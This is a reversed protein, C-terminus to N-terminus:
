GSDNRSVMLCFTNNMTGSGELSTISITITSPTKKSAYNVAAMLESLNAALPALLFAVYFGPVHIRDGLNSLADVMPDSFLIILATGAAMM